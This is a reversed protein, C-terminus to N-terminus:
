GGGIPLRVIDGPENTPPAPHLVIYFYNADAQIERTITIDHSVLEFEADTDAGGAGAAGAEPQGGAGAQPEGSTSGAAGGAGAQEPVGGSGASVLGPDPSSKSHESKGCGIAAALLLVGVGARVDDAM